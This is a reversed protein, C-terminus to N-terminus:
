TKVKELQQRLEESTFQEPKEWNGITSDFEVIKTRWPSDIPLFCCHRIYCIKKKL